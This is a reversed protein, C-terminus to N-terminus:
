IAVKTTHLQLTAECAAGRPQARLMLGVKEHIKEHM